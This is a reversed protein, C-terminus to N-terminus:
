SAPVITDAAEYPDLRRELVCDLTRSFELAGTRPEIVQRGFDDVLFIGGNAKMQLPADYFKSERHWILDLMGMDLEGGVRRFVNLFTMMELQRAGKVTIDGRNQVLINEQEFRSFGPTETVLKGDLLSPKEPLYAWTARGEGAGLAETSVWPVSLVRRDRSHGRTAPPASGVPSCAWRRPNTGM